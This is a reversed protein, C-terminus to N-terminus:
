LESCTLVRTFILLRVRSPTRMLSEVFQPAL